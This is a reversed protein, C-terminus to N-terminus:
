IEYRNVCIVIFHLKKRSKHHGKLLRIINTPPTLGTFLGRGAFCRNQQGDAHHQPQHKHQLQHQHQGGDREEGEGGRGGGASEEGRESM